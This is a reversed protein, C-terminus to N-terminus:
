SRSQDDVDDDLLEPPAFVPDPPVLKDYSRFLYAELIAQHNSAFAENMAKTQGAILDVNLKDALVILDRRAHRDGKAYLTVLQEIGAEALTVTRKQEGQKLQVKKDLARELAAKLDLAIPPSKRKAGKPNGSKGPKFQHEKPPRGPGVKYEAETEPASSATLDSPSENNDKPMSDEVSLNHPMRNSM